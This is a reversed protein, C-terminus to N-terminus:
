ILDCLRFEQGRVTLTSELGADSLSQLFPVRQQEVETWAQELAAV